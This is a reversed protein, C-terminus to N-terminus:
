GKQKHKYVRDINRWDKSGYSQSYDIGERLNNNYFSWLDDWTNERPCDM